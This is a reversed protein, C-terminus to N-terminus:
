KSVTSELWVLGVFLALLCGIGGRLGMVQHHFSCSFLHDIIRSCGSQENIIVSNHNMEDVFYRPRWNKRLRSTFFPLKIKKTTNDLIIFQIIVNELTLTRSSVPESSWAQFMDYKM